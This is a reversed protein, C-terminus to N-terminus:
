AKDHVRDEPYVIYGLKFLIDLVDEMELDNMELIEEPKFILKTEAWWDRKDLEDKEM